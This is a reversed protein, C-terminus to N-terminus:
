VELFAAVAAREFWVDCFQITPRARFAPLAGARVGRMVDVLGLRGDGRSLVGAVDVVLGDVDGLARMPLRGLLVDLARRLTRESYLWRCPAGLRFPGFAPRILGAETLADLDHPGVQCYRAADEPGLLLDERGWRESRGQCAVEPCAPLDLRGWAYGEAARDRVLRLWGESALGWGCEGAQSRLVLPFPPEGRRVGEGACAGGILEPWRLPWDRVLRWAAVLADHVDAIDLDQLRPSADTGAAPVKRTVVAQACGWLGRLLAATGLRRLPHAATLAAGEPPCPGALCGTGQWLLATVEVSDPDATLSRTPMAAITCGCRACGARGVELRLPAACGACRQRLLLRHWPCATLHYLSWPLLIVQREEWCAPCVAPVPRTHAEWGVSQWLPVPLDEAAAPAVRGAVRGAARRSLGFRPAFRHLTLGILTDRDLGTLESLARFDAVRRLGNPCALPRGLLDDLWTPERYHNALRLRQLVSELSELPAPRLRNILPTPM